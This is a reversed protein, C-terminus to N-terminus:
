KKLLDQQIRSMFVCMYVILFVESVVIIEEDTSLLFECQQPHLLVNSCEV